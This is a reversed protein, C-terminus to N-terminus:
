LVGLPLSHTNASIGLGHVNTWVKSKAKAFEFVDAFMAPRIRVLHVQKRPVSSGITMWQVKRGAGANLGPATEIVAHAVACGVVLKLREESM